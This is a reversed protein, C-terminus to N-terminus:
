RVKYRVGDVNVYDGKRVMNDAVFVMRKEGNIDVIQVVSGNQTQIVSDVYIKGQNTFGDEWEFCDKQLDETYYTYWYFATYAEVKNRGRGVTKKHLKYIGGRKKHSTKSARKIIKSKIKKMLKSTYFKSGTHDLNPHFFHWGIFKVDNDIPKGDMLEATVPHEGVEELIPSKYAVLEDSYEELKDLMKDIDDEKDDASSLKKYKKVKKAVDDGDKFTKLMSEVDGIYKLGEDDCHDLAIYRWDGIM